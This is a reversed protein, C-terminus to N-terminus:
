SVTEFIVRRVDEDNIDPKFELLNERNHKILYKLVNDYQEPHVKVYRQLISNSVILDDPIDNSQLMVPLIMDFLEVFENEFFDIVAENITRFGQVIIPLEIRYDEFYYPVDYNMANIRFEQKEIFTLSDWDISNMSSWLKGDEGKKQIIKEIKAWNQLNIHVDFKCLSIYRSYIEYSSEILYNWYFVGNIDNLDNYKKIFEDTINEKPNNEFIKCYISFSNIKSLDYTQFPFNIYDIEQFDIIKFSKPPDNIKICTNM